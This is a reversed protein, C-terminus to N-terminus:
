RMGVTHTQPSDQHAFVDRVAELFRTGNERDPLLASGETWENWANILIMSESAHHRECFTRARELGAKFQAPTGDFVPLWPYPGPEFPDASSARPSSDWGVTVNPYFPVGLTSAYDEYATFAEQAVMDWDGVPFHHKEPSIHHIWVYSSGSDLDLSQVAEAANRLGVSGPLMDLGWMVADIHVGPHGAERAKRQFDELADRTAEIGGLGAILSGLEYISFWPKGAIRLYNPQSFYENIVHDTMDDFSKRTNAGHVLPGSRDARSAPFLNHLEHNAWMLAFGLQDRNPAKMFGDHLASELFPGDEYWYYDFMFGDIGHQRALEIQRAMEVPDSEDREGDAPVRPQRHGPFRAAAERLLDWETWANGFWRATHPDSHWNPFFYAFVRPTTM